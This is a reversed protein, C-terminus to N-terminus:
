LDPSPAAQRDPLLSTRYRGAAAAEADGIRRIGTSGRDAGARLNTTAEDAVASRWVPSGATPRPSPVSGNPGRRCYGRNWLLRSHRDRRHARPLNSETDLM